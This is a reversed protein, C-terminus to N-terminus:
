GNRYQGTVAPWRVGDACAISFSFLYRATPPMIRNSVASWFRTPMLPPSMPGPCRRRNLQRGPQVPRAQHRDRPIMHQGFREIQQAIERAAPDASGHPDLHRAAPDIVANGTHQDAAVIIGGGPRGVLQALGHKWHRRAALALALHGIAEADVDDHIRQGAVVLRVLYVHRRDEFPKSLSPPLLM